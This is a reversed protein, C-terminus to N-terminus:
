AVIEASLKQQEIVFNGELNLQLNWFKYMETSSHFCFQSTQDM